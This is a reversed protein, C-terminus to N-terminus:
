AVEMLAEQLREKLLAVKKSGCAFSHLREGGKSYLHIWPMATLEGEGKRAEAIVDKSEAWEVDLFRVAGDECWAERMM